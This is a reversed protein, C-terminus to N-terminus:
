EEDEWEESIRVLVNNSSRNANQFELDTVTSSLDDYVLTIDQLTLTRNQSINFFEQKETNEVLADNCGFIRCNKTINIPSTILNNGTVVILNEEGEVSNVAKQITEFATEISKGDNDDDGNPSVYWNASSCGAINIEMEETGFTLEGDSAIFKFVNTTEEDLLSSNITYVNNPYAEEILEDNLYIDVYSPTTLNEAYSNLFRFSFRVRQNKFPLTTNVSVFLFKGLNAQPDCLKDKHEWPKPIWGEEHMTEDWMKFLANERNVLNSSIGYLKWLELVPLPTDHLRLNYNLIRNMYHYDDETLRNNYPPETNAYDETPIYTKRPINNFAGIEDLSEDHDYINGQITDNEPFGKMIIYEDYTEVIMSFTDEPIIPVETEDEQNEGEGDSLNVLLTNTEDTSDYSYIFSSVNDEELYEEIYILNDNKYCKVSKLHPYNAIFNIVYDYAVTQEKWILCTKLLHLSEVVNFLSQYINKFQNNTVSQSKFFNSTESKDFFYPFMDMLRKLSDKVM